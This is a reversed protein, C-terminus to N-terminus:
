VLCHGGGWGRRFFGGACFGVGDVALTGFSLISSLTGRMLRFMGIGSGGRGGFVCVSFM